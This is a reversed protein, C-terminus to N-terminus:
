YSLWPYLCGRSLDPSLTAANDGLVTETWCATGAIAYFCQRQRTTQFM